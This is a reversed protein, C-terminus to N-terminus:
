QPHRVETRRGTRAAEHAAMAIALVRRGALGDPEPQRGERICHFFDELEDAFGDNTPVQIEEIEGGRRSYYLPGDSGGKTIKLAGKTGAVGLEYSNVPYVRSSSLSGIAGGAFEIGIFINDEIDAEADSGSDMVAHVARVEGALWALQDLEHSYMSFQGGYTARKSQWGRVGGPAGRGLRVAHAMRILGIRGDAVRRKMEKYASQYRRVYGIMLIVGAQGAAAIMADCDEVTLAMPKECFVHTGANAADVSIAAHTHNPTVVIVADLDSHELMKRHDSYAAPNSELAAALKEASELFFDSVATIEAGKITAVNQAHRAGLGGCGVLGVRLTNREAM